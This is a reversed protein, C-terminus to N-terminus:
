KRVLLRGNLLQRLRDLSAYLYGTRPPTQPAAYREEVPTQPDTGGSGPETGVLFAQM